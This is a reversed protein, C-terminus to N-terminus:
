RSTNLWVVVQHNFDGPAVVLDERGDRNLDGAALGRLYAPVPLVLPAAFTCDNHGLFVAAAAVMQNGSPRAIVLDDWGDGDFDRAVAYFPPSGLQPGYAVPSGLHGRGDGPFCEFLPGSATMALDLAADGNFRGLALALAGSMLPVPNDWAVSLAGAHAGRFVTPPRYGATVVEARGDGDLDAVVLGTKYNAPRDFTPGRAFTRHAGGLLVQPQDQNSVAVDLRGDGDVDGIAIADVLGAWPARVPASFGQAQGYLLVVGSGDGLALDAFGDGDLDASALYGTEGPWAIPAGLTGDGRGPLLFLGSDVAVVADLKGDGNFDAVRLDFPKAPLQYTVPAAFSLTVPAPTICRGRKCHRSTCDNGIACGIGDPCPPCPGGCDVGTERGNQLGDSCTPVPACVGAVCTASQCDTDQACRRGDACGPCAGGCDVDTENGDQLGDTCTPPGLDPAPSLAALDRGAALDLGAPTLGDPNCAVALLTTALLTWRGHAAPRQLLPPPTCLFM